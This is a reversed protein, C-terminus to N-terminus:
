SMDALVDEVSVTVVKIGYDAYGYPLILLGDHVMSGCSYVVDPTYGISEDEAPELLPSTLRGVVKTPEDLDLLVAGLVYRRMPGVGHTIVLWGADTELPSGCNGTQVAEWGQEPILVAEANDWRRINDSRMVFTTEHDHRSLAAFEGQVKRPFLAMGKHYVTPGSMTAMRFHHFDTTKILQPLIRMGDYATYTAYYTVAGDDDVFRVFRADEMGHSESPAAPSVLHQSIPLAPNFDLEYNSAALWHVMRVTDAVLVPDLDSEGISRLAGDLQDATFQAPLASLIRSSADNVFDLEAIKHSFSLRDYLPATRVGNGAYASRADFDVKGNRGVTGTFFAVSSIHGEGIARASMVFPQAGEHDEGFPVMSPNTLAAGEYAYGMTLYAGVLLRLDPDTVSGLRVSHQAAMEFHLLWASEIDVYRGVARARADGLLRGQMEPPLDLIRGVILDLRDSPGGFSATGPLLPRPVLRSADPQLSHVTRTLEVM